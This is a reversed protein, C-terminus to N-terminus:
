NPFTAFFHSRRYRIALDVLSIACYVATVLLGGAYGANGVSHIWAPLLISSTKYYLCGLVLSFLFIGPLQLGPKSVTHPILFLVSSATIAWFTKAKVVDLLRMLINIAVARFVMEEMLAGVSIWALNETSRLELRGSVVLYSYIIALIALSALGGCRFSFGYAAPERRRRTISYAIVAAIPLWFLLVLAFSRPWAAASHVRFYNVPIGLVTWVATLLLLM